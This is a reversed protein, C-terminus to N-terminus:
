GPALFIAQRGCVRFGLRRYLNFGMPTSYLVATRTGRARAEHLAARTMAAGIGRRRVEPLTTISHLSAVDAALFVTATGVPAGDLFGVLHRLPRDERFGIPGYAERFAATFFPPVEFGNAWVQFWEEMRLRDAVPEVRFGAPTPAEVTPGEVDLYLAPIDEALTYGHRALHRGLEGPRSTPGVRWEMPLNRRRFRHTVEDIAAEPAGDSLDAWLVGNLTPAAHGSAFWTLRPERHFEMGPRSCFLEWFALGNAEISEPLGEPVRSTLSEPM